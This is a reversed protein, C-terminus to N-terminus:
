YKFTKRAYKFGQIAGKLRLYYKRFKYGDCLLIHLLMGIFARGLYNLAYPLICLNKLKIHKNLLAGFGLAYSYVKELDPNRKDPHYVLINSNYFIRYKNFLARLVLDGSEESAFFTGVGLNEDFGGLRLLVDRKWFLNFEITRRYFNFCSVEGSVDPFNLLAPKERVPDLVKVALADYDQNVSFFTLVKDLTNKSLFSDDDPFNVYEGMAFKLGYNRARAAGKFNVKLHKILFSTSYRGIVSSLRSDENQDVIIVELSTLPITQYKISNLLRDLERVRGLTPIVLSFTKRM